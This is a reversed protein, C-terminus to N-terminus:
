ATTREKAYQNKMKDFNKLIFQTGSIKDKWFSDAAAWNIVTLIQEDTYYALLERIPKVWETVTTTNYLVKDDRGLNDKMGRYVKYGIVISEGKGDSSFDKSFYQSIIKKNDRESVSDSVSVSDAKKPETPNALIVTPNEPNKPRGGKSGNLRQKDIYKEYKKLDRKLTNRISIFATNILIDETEPNEDNVYAFLHKILQGAKEDPLSDFTEKWDCYCVFSKKGEAM